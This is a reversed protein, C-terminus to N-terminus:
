GNQGQYGPIAYRNPYGTNNQDQGNSLIDKLVQAQLAPDGPAMEKALRVAEAYKNGAANTALFEGSPRFYTMGGTTPNVAYNPNMTNLNATNARNTIANIYSNRINQTAQKRAINFNDNAAINKDYLSTALGAKTASAQNKIATNQANTQNALGVNLSNYRGMIDAANKGALGQTAAQQAALQRPDTFYMAAQNAINAQEANAALERTPDYKVNEILSFDPTAQWPRQNVISARDGV